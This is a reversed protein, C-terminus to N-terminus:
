LKRLVRFDPVQIRGEAKVDLWAFPPDTVLVGGGAAALQVKYRGPELGGATWSGDSSPRVRRAENLINNPGFVVVADVHTAEPGTIRGWIQVPPDTSPAAAAVAAPGGASSASGTAATNTAPVSVTGPSASDQAPTPPQAESPTATAAGAGVPASAVTPVAAVDAPTQNTQPMTAASESPPDPEVNPAADGTDPTTQEVVTAPARPKEPPSDPTDPPAKAAPPTEVSAGAGAAAIAVTGSTAAGTASVAPASGTSPNDGTAARVPKSSTTEAPTTLPLVDPPVTEIPAGGAGTGAGVAPLKSPAALAVATGDERELALTSFDATYLRGDAARALAHRGDKSAALEVISAPTVVQERVPLQYAQPPDALNVLLLTGRQALMVADGVGAVAVARNDGSVRFLPGSRIDPVFVTRLEDHCAIVLASKGAWEDLAGASPPMRMLHRVRLRDTEVSVLSTEGEGRKSPKHLLGYLSGDGTYLLDRIEGTVTISLPESVGSSYLRVETRQPKTSPVALAASEGTPGLALAALGDLSGLRDLIPPREGNPLRVQPEAAVAPRLPAVSQVLAVM